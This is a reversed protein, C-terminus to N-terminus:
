EALDATTRHYADRVARETRGLVKAVAPVHEPHLRRAGREMRAYTDPRVGLAEAVEKRTRGSFGRLDELTWCSPDVSSLQELPLSLADALAVATPPSPRRDGKEYAILNPRKIGVVEGLQDHSLGRMQRSRALTEGSFSRVAEPMLGSTVVARVRRAAAASFTPAM